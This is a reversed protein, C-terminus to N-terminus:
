CAHIQSLKTAKYVLARGPRKVNVPRVRANIHHIKIKISAGPHIRV